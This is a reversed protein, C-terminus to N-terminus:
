EGGWTATDPFNVYWAFWFSHGSALRTLETGDGLVLASEGAVGDLDAGADLGTGDYFRAGGGTPVVVITRGEVVIAQTGAADLAAVGVALRSGDLDVTAVLEKDEFIDPVDATPFWLDAQDYYAAYADGPEYSYLDGQPIAIVGSDPHEAVWDGYTTVTIPFRDLVTGELEGVIAEGTLQNWLTDTQTDVMVKNSNRLLGSTQFDLIEGSVVRSFLVGTRCLTCNALAVPEGGLVDNALEHHDLIRHPYSRAEGNIEAGFTLEDATMYSAEENTIVRPANVAPIGGRRVGGWQLQSALVPDAGALLDTFDPDILGYLSAKWDVYGPVPVPEERYMWSGYVQYADSLDSSASVGTLAELSAAIAVLTDSGGFLRLLDVLYPVYGVEGTTAMDASLAAVQEPTAGVLVLQARAVLSDESASAATTTTTTTAFRSAEESRRARAEQQAELEEPSIGSSPPMGPGVVLLLLAPVLVLLAVLFRRM